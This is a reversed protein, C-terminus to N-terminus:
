AGTMQCKFTQTITDGSIANVVAPWRHWAWLDGAASASLVGAGTISVTAGVNFVAQWQTTDNTVATTVNTVTAAKRAVGTETAETALANTTASFADMNGKDLAVWAGQGALLSAGKVWLKQTGSSGEAM